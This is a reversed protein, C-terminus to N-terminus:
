WLDRVLSRSPKPLSQLPVLPPSGVREHPKLLLFSLPSHQLVAQASTEYSLYDQQHSQHERVLTRRHSTSSLYRLEIRKGNEHYRWSMIAEPLM